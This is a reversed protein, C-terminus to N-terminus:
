LVNGSRMEGVSYRAYQNYGTYCNITIGSVNTEILRDQVNWRRITNLQKFLSKFGNLGRQFQINPNTSYQEWLSLMETMARQNTMTLFLRGSLAKEEEGNIYHFDDSPQIDDLEIEGM